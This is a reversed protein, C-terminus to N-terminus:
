CYVTARGDGRVGAGPRGNLVTHPPPVHVGKGGKM